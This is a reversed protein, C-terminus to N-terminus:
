GARPASVGRVVRRRAGAVEPTVEVHEAWTSLRWWAQGEAAAGHHGWKQM